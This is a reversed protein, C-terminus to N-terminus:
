FNKRIGATSCSLFNWENERNRFSKFTQTNKKIYLQESPALSCKPWGTTVKEGKTEGPPTIKQFKSRVTTKGFNQGSPM